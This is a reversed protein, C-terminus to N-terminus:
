CLLRSLEASNRRAEEIKEKTLKLNNLLYVMLNRIGMSFLSLVLSLKIDYIAHRIIFFNLDTIRNEGEAENWVCSGDYADVIEKNCYDCIFVPKSVGEKKDFVITLPM